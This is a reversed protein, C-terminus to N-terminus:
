NMRGIVKDKVRKGDRERGKEIDGERIGFLYLAVRLHQPFTFQLCM